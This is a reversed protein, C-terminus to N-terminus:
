LHLNRNKIECFVSTKKNILIKNKLSMSTWSNRRPGPVGPIKRLGARCLDAFCIRASNSSPVYKKKITKLGLFSM